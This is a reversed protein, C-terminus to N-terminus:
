TRCQLVTQKVNIQGARHGLGHHLRDLDALPLPSDSHVRWIFELVQGIVPEDVNTRDRNRIQRVFNLILSAARVLDIRNMIRVAFTQSKHLVALHCEDESALVIERGDVDVSMDGEASFSM